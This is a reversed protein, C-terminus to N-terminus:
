GVELVLPPRHCTRTSHATESRGTPQAPTLHPGDARQNAVSQVSQNSAPSLDKLSYVGAAGVALAAVLTLVILVVFRPFRRVEFRAQM